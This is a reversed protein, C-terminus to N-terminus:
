AYYQQFKGAFFWPCDKTAWPVEDGRVTVKLRVAEGHTSNFSYWDVPIPMGVEQAKLSLDVCLKDFLKLSAM